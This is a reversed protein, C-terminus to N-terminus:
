PAAVDLSAIRPSPQAPLDIKLQRLLILQDLEPETYRSLLVTRGDTTPLHMDVMQIAAMKELVSRPTLGPALSRLRQKLTVQLCYALFAVFIHAEIRADTQHYIPRIALDGKLEKFAQEIEVLQLYFAWLKAPDGGTLNSRLLYSGERRRAERLKQWNLKFCFTEATVPQDKGPLQIDIIRYAVPGAETRAAGLKILLQDRTLKQQRLEHLRKVLKKLRRRRMAQEKDRRGGSRALIYLEGDQEILKVQVSDRVQAWPRALFEQELQSLRARPTGVLYHTPTKAARMEDARSGDPHWPGNGLHARSQWIPGRDAQPLRGADDQGLYQGADGRLDAPFGRPDRDPCHGGPRLRIQPGALPRVAAQRNRASRM